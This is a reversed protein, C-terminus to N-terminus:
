DRYRYSALSCSWGEIITYSNPHTVVNPRSIARFSMGAQM